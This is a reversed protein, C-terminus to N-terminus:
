MIKDNKIINNIIAKKRAKAAVEPKVKLKKNKKVSKM